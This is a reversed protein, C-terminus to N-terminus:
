FNKKKAFFNVYQNLQLLTLAFSEKTVFFSAYDWIPSNRQSSLLRLHEDFLYCREQFSSAITLKIMNLLTATQDEQEPTQSKVGSEISKASPDFVHFCCIKVRLMRGFDSKIKEFIKKYVAAGAIANGSIMAQAGLPLYILVVHPDLFNNGSGNHFVTISEMTERLAAKKSKYEELSEASLLVLRALPATHASSLSISPLQVPGFSHAIDTVTVIPTHISDPVIANVGTRHDKFVIGKLQDLKIKQTILPWLSASDLVAINVSPFRPHKFGDRAASSRRRRSM